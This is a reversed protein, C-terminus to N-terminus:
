GRSQRWKFRQNKWRRSTVVGGLYGSFTINEVAGLELSTLSFGLNTVELDGANELFVGSAGTRVALRDVDSILSQTTSAISSESVLILDTGQVSNAAGSIISSSSIM